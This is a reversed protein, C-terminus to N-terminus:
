TVPYIASGSKASDRPAPSWNQVNACPVFLIKCQPPRCSEAIVWLASGSKASNGVAHFKIQRIECLAFGLDQVTQLLTFWIRHQQEYLSILNQAIAWLKYSCLDAKNGMSCFVIRWQQGYCQQGSFRGSEGSNGMAHSWIRCLQGNRPVLDSHYLVPFFIRCM